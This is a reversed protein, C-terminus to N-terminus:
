LPVEWTKKVKSHVWYGRGVEFYDSPGLEEWKKTAANYTWISDIDTTFNINNLGATRTKNTLSPYGVLNWGPYLTITQNKIPQVGSYQFLVGGPQTIHIWFGMKHDIDDLDNLHSPKKISSHKWPDSNDSVNYWQVADYSGKISNLVIDLNTDPQIFPISILNWGEYLFLYKIFKILPYNDQSDGDIVYPNKGGGAITGNDVIGDSGLVNQDVGHYDDYAGESPEDFNSWYNGGSPYGNDWQTGNVTEDYAQIINNIINNHYIFNDSTWDIYFGYDNNSVTNGGVLNDSSSQSINVGKYNDSIYNGTINNNSSYYIMIGDNSNLVITNSMVVNNDFSYLLYIGNGNNSINNHTIINNSSEQLFCGNNNNSIVNDTIINSNSSQVYIGYDGNSINNNRILNNNASSSFYIGYENNSSITNWEIVNESPSFVLGIGCDNNSINNNIVTNNSSSGTLGIGIYNNSVYNDVIINNNSSLGVNIGCSSGYHNNWLVNNKTVINNNSKDLVIGWENNTVNNDTITSNSSEILLIGYRDNSSINNNAIIINTTYAVEIGNETNNIQLRRVDIDTCNALIVQGVPIGDLNINNSDKYYLLPKGNIINDDPIHHSNYHSLLNGVLFIGDNVFNNNTITINISDRIRIGWGNNSINNNTITINSSEELALSWDSNSLNNNAIINNSSLHLRICPAENSYFDNNTINNNSSGWVEVGYNNNWLNNNTMNNNSSYLSISTFAYSINCYKIEAHGISNIQIRNWDGFTPFSMNSTIIVRNLDTGVAMLTGDVYISYYGDFKVQVGPKITLTEGAPVTVDGVVIYPSGAPTWPGGSGDYIIGSVNTGRANKSEFSVFGIFGGIVLLSVIGISTLRNKM